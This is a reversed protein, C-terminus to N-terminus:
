VTHRAMGRVTGQFPMLEDDRLMGLTSMIEKFFEYWGGDKEMIM